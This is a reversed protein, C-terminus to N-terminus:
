SSLESKKSKETCVQMALTQFLSSILEAFSFRRRGEKEMECMSKRFLFSFLNIVGFTFVGGRLFCGRCSSVKSSFPCMCLGSVQLSFSVDELYRTGFILCPDALHASFTKQLCIHLQWSKPISLILSNSCNDCILIDTRALNPTPRWMWILFTNCPAFTQRSSLIHCFRDGLWGLMPLKRWMWRGSLLGEGDNLHDCFIFAFSFVWLAVWLHSIDDCQRAESHGLHWREVIHRSILFIFWLQNSVWNRSCSGAAVEVAAESWCLHYNLFM